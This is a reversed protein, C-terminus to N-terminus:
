GWCALLCSMKTESVVGPNGDQSTFWDQWINYRMNDLRLSMATLLKYLKLFAYGEDFIEKSENATRVRTAIIIGVFRIYRSEVLFQCDLSMASSGSFIGLWAEFIPWSAWNQGPIAGHTEKAPCPPCFYKTSFISFFITVGLLTAWGPSINNNILLLGCVCMWM